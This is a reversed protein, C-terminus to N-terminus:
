VCPITVPKNATLFAIAARQETVTPEISPRPEFATTGFADSSSGPTQAASMHMSMHRSMHMSMHRSMHMSMHASMHMSM